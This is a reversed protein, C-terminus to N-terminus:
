ESLEQFEQEIATPDLHSTKLDEETIVPKVKFVGKGCRFMLRKLAKPMRIADVASALNGSTRVKGEPNKFADILANGLRSYTKCAYVVRNNVILEGTMDNFTMKYAIKPLKQELAQTQPATPITTIKECEEIIKLLRSLKNNLFDYRFLVEGMDKSYTYRMYDRRVSAVNHRDFPEDFRILLSKQPMKSLANRIETLWKETKDQANWYVQRLEPSNTFTLSNQRANPQAQAESERDRLIEPLEDKNDPDVIMLRAIDTRCDQCIKLGAEYLRYLSDTLESDM